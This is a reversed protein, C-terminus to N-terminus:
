PHPVLFHRDAGPVCEGQRKYVDKRPLEVVLHKGRNVVMGFVNKERSWRIQLKEEAIRMWLRQGEELPYKSDRICMKLMMAITPLSFRLLSGFHFERSIKNDM